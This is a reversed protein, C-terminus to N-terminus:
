GFGPRVGYISIRSGAVWLAGASGTFTLRNLAETSSTRTCMVQRIIHGGTTLLYTTASRVQLTKYNDTEAYDQVDIDFYGWMGAGANAAPALIPTRADGTGLHETATATTGNVQLRESRYNALTTDNNIAVDCTAFGAASASRLRGSIRLSTFGQDIDQFDITGGTSVTLVQEAIPALAGAAVLDSVTVKRDAPTGGPDDVMYLIEDGDLTSAQQFARIDPM